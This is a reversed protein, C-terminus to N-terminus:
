RHHPADRTRRSTIEPEFRRGRGLEASAWAFLWLGSKEDDSLPSPEILSREIADLGSGDGTRARIASRVDRPTDLSM